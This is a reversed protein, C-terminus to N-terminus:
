RPTPAAADGQAGAHQGFRTEDRYFGSM